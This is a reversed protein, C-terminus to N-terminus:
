GHTENDVPLGEMSGFWDWAYRLYLASGSNLIRMMRSRCVIRAPRIAFIM